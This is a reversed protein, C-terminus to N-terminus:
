STRTYATLLMSLAEKVLRSMRPMTESDWQQILPRPVTRTSDLSPSGVGLWLLHDVQMRIAMVGEVILKNSEGDLRVRDSDTADTEDNRGLMKRGDRDDVILLTAGVGETLKMNINM